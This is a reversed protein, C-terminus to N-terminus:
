GSSRAGAADLRCMTHSDNASSALTDSMGQRKFSEDKDEEDVAVALMAVVLHLLAATGERDHALQERDALSVEVIRSIARLSEEIADLDVTGDRPILDQQNACM